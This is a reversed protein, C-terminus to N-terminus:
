DAAKKVYIEDYGKIKTGNDTFTVQSSTIERRDWYHYTPAFYSSIQANPHKKWDKGFHLLMKFYAQNTFISEHQWYVAVLLAHYTDKKINKTGNDNAIDTKVDVMGLDEWKFHKTSLSTLPIM